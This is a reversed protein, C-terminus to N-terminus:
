AKEYIFVIGNKALDNKISAFNTADAFFKGGSGNNLKNPDYKHWELGSGGSKSDQLAQFKIYQKNIAEELLEAALEIEAKEARTTLEEITKDEVAGVVAAAGVNVYAKYGVSLGDKVELSVASRLKYKTGKFGVEIEDKANVLSDNVKYIDAYPYMHTLGTIQNFPTPIHGLVNLRRDVVFMLTRSDLIKMHNTHVAGWPTYVWSIKGFKDPKLSYVPNANSGTIGDISDYKGDDNRNDAFNQFRSDGARPLMVRLFPVRKMVGQPIPASPHVFQPLTSVTTPYFSLANCVKYLMDVANDPRFAQLKSQQCQHLASLLRHSSHFMNGTRLANVENKLLTHIMARKHMDDMQNQSCFKNNPLTTMDFYLEKDALGRLTGRYGGKIRNSVVRATDSEFLRRNLGEVKIAGLAVFLPHMFTGPLVVGNATITAHRNTADFKRTKINNFDYLLSMQQALQDVHQSNEALSHIFNVHVKDSAKVSMPPLISIARLAGLSKGANNVNPFLQKQELGKTFANWRHLFYKAYTESDSKSYSVQLLKKAEEFAQQATWMGGYKYYIQYMLPRIIRDFGMLKSEIQAREKSSSNNELISNRCLELARDLEGIIRSDM